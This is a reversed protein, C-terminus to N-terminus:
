EAAPNATGARPRRQQLHQVQDVIGVDLRQPGLVFGDAPDVLVEVGLFLALRHAIGALRRAVAALQRHAVLEERRAVHHLEQDVVGQPPQPEVGGAPLGAQALAALVQQHLGVFLGPRRGLQAVRAGQLQQVRGAARHV